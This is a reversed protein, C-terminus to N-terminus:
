PGLGLQKFNSDGAHMHRGKAVTFLLIASTHVLRRHHTSKSSAMGAQVTKERERETHTDAHM